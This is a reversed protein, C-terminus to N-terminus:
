SGDRVCATGDWHYGQPCNPNDPGVDEGENAVDGQADTATQSRYAYPDDPCCNILQCSM